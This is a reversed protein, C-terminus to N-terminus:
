GAALSLLGVPQPQPPIASRAAAPRRAPGLRPDATASEDVGRRRDRGATLLTMEIPSQRHRLRRVAPLVLQKAEVVRREHAPHRDAHFVVSDGELMDRQRDKAVHVRHSREVRQELHRHQRQRVALSQVLAGVLEVVEIFERDLAADGRQRRATTGVAALYLLQHRQRHDPRFLRHGDLVFAFPRGFQVPSVPRAAQPRLHPLRERHELLAEVTVEQKGAAQRLGVDRRDGTDAEDAVHQRM